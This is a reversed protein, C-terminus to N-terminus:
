KCKYERGAIKMKQDKIFNILEHFEKDNNEINIDPNLKEQCLKLKYM